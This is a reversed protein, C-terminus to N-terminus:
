SFLRSRLMILALFPLLACALRPDPISVPARDSRQSDFGGRSSGGPAARVPAQGAPGDGSSQLFSFIESQVSQAQPGLPLVAPPASGPPAGVADRLGSAPLTQDAGSGAPVQAALSRASDEALRLALDRAPADVVSLILSQRSVHLAILAVRGAGPEPSAAAPGPSPTQRYALWYGGQMAPAEYVWGSGSAASRGTGSRLVTALPQAGALAAPAQPMPLEAPAPRVSKRVAPAWGGADASRVGATPSKAVSSGELSREDTLIDMLRRGVGQAGEDTSLSQAESAAGLQAKVAASRTALRLQQRRLAPLGDGPVPM